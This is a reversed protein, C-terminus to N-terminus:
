AVRKRAPTERITEVFRRTAALTTESHAAAEAPAPFDRRFHGGRSEERALAAAAVLLGALAADGGTGAARDLARVAGILGDADRVVGVAADMMARVAADARLPASLPSETPILAASRTPATGTIDAAIWEAFALAEVLSNSALRNAGHLGTAAVEGAAWLGELSSRGAADVAVGGMHYHAAPRVPIPATVPDLGAARCLAVVGPFRAELGPMRADLFVARGAAREAFIARAVVDRPALERGPVDAMFRTGRGDVLVAGEGRLAETALPMPDAGAAIATPHFQVFELDRLKAGARAALALGSGVAGLPNTTAAYLGGLGGTALVVARGRLTVPRGDRDVAVLGVIRGTEDRRLSVVRLGEALTISPTRRVAAALTELVARGTADGRAHVIRRRGHAAELGLAIAGDATRDFPTGLRDLWAIQAPAAAAVRAAIAPETLGAGAAITDAAHHDPRDDAGIAAAIGGQAWATAAEEGLPLRALLTVPLPALRLATSLGAVGGGVVLVGDTTRTEM